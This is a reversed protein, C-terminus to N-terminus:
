ITERSAGLGYAMPLCFYFVTSANNERSFQILIWPMEPHHNQEQAGNQKLLWPKNFHVTSLFHMSWILFPNVFYTIGTCFSVTHLLIIFALGLFWTYNNIVSLTSFQSLPILGIFTSDWSNVNVPHFSVIQSVASM